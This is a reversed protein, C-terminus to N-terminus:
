ALWIGSGLNYLAEPWSDSEHLCHQLLVRGKGKELIWWMPQGSINKLATWVDRRLDDEQDKVVSSGNLFQQNHNQERTHQVHALWKLWRRRQRLLDAVFVPNCIMLQSLACLVFLLHKIKVNYLPTATDALSHCQLLSSTLQCTASLPVSSNLVVEQQRLRSNAVVSSLTNELRRGPDAQSLTVRAQYLVNSDSNQWLRFKFFKSM